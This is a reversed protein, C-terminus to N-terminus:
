DRNAQYEQLLESMAAMRESQSWGDPILNTVNPTPEPTPEPTPDPTPDPEVSAQYASVVQPTWILNAIAQVDTCECAIVSDGPSFVQRFYQTGMDVGDKVVVTATRLQIVKNPQIEIKYELRETYTSM